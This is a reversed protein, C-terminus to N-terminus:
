HKSTSITKNQTFTLLKSIQTLNMKMFSKERSSKSDKKPIKKMKTFPEQGLIFNLKAQNSSIMTSQKKPKSIMGSPWLNKLNSLISKPSELSRGPTLRFRGPGQPLLPPDPNPSNVSSIGIQPRALARNPGITSMTLCKSSAKTLPSNSWKGSSPTSNNPSLTSFINAISVKPLPPISSKLKKNLSSSSPIQTLFCRTFLSFTSSRSPKKRKGSWWTWM